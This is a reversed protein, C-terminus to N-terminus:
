GKSRIVNGVVEIASKLTEIGLEKDLTMTTMVYMPPAILKIKVQAEPVGKAEGASLAAKIADIGEYTFCTLEIDARIKVPQPALKRKVYNMVCDKIEPEIDLGAFIDEESDM